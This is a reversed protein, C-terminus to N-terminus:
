KFTRPCPALAEAVIAIKENQGLESFWSGAIKSIEALTMRPLSSMVSDGLDMVLRESQNKWYQNSGPPGYLAGLLAGSHDFKSGNDANLDSM